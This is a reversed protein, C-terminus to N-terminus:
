RVAETGYGKGQHEVDIMLQEICIENPRNDAHNPYFQM